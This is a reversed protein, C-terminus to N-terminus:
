SSGNDGIVLKVTPNVRLSARCYSSAMTMHLFNASSFGVNGLACSQKAIEYQPFRMYGCNMSSHFSKLKSEPSRFSAPNADARSCCNRVTPHFLARALPMSTRSAHRLVPYEDGYSM